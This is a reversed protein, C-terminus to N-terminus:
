LEGRIKEAIETLEDDNARPGSPPTVRPGIKLGEIDYLDEETEESFEYIPYLKIHAHPVELGEAVMVVTYCDLKEKLLKGVKKATSLLKGYEADKIDFVFSPEHAKPIVLTMGKGRPFIDLIAIHDEDEWVKHSPIDGKVIKCFICDDIEDV